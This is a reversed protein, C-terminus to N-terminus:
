WKYNFGAVIDLPLEEYGYWRYNENGLLNSLAFTLHFNDAVKYAFKLGLDIYSNLEIINALDAYSDSSYELNVQANLGFQFNYGYILNSKIVPSYPLFNGSSDTTRSFEVNGYFMGFPGPHFLLSLTAAIKKADATAIVFRGSEFSNMYYPMNDSTTYEAGADIQFYKDYEYKIAATYHGQNEVFINRTRTQVDYYPNEKLFNGTTLFDAHPAFQGYLSINKNLTFSLSAYPSFFSNEKVKQYNLGFFAKLVKSFVLGVAPRVSFFSYQGDVNENTISQFKYDANAILSFNALELKAFGNLDLLNESFDEDQLSSFDDSFGGGFIIVDSLLNNISLGANGYNHSRKESPDVSSAYFRYSSIGYDGHLKFQTGPLFASENDVFFSLNAAGGVNYMASNEIHERQNKGFAMAEFIGSKFPLSYSFKGVPMLYTGVGANLNGNLFNLTDFLDIEDKVPNSLDRIDLEEPSFAPKLFSQSISSVIEPMIKQAKQVNVVDTGTIVFDPLEVNPNAEDQAFLIASGAFFFVCLLFQTFISKIKGMVEGSGSKATGNLIRRM